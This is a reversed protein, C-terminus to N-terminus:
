RRRLTLLGAFGLLMFSAPEPICITDLVIQSIYMEWGSGDSWLDIEEWPPNPEITAHWRTYWWGGGLDLEVTTEFASGGSTAYFEPMPRDGNLGSPDAWWTIQLYIEKLPRPTPDNDNIIEVWDYPAIYWVGQRGEFSDMWYDYTPANPVSIYCEGFPNYGVEPQIYEPALGNTDFSWQSFTSTPGYRDWPPPNLDDALAPTAFAVVTLVVLALRM